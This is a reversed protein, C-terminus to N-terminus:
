WGLIEDIEEISLTEVGSGDFVEASEVSDVDQISIVVGTNASNRRVECQPSFGPKGPKGVGVVDVEIEPTNNIIDVDIQPSANEITVEIDAM